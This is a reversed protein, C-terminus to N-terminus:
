VGQFNWSWFGLGMFMGCSKEKIVGSFKVEKKISGRSNGYAKKKLVGLFEMDEVGDVREKNPNKGSYGIAIVICAGFNHFLIRCNKFYGAM